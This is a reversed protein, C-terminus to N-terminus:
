FLFDIVVSFVNFHGGPVFKGDIQHDLSGPSGAGINTRDYQMKLAANKVFDWRIGFSVTKQEPAATLQKNLEKNAGAAAASAVGPDSSNSELRARAFSAYPTFKGFRYGSTVYWGSRKGYISHTDLVGYEGMVFWKGPDYNAGMTFISFEKDNPDYKDILATVQPALGPFFGALKRYNSFLEDYSNITGRTRLYSLHLTSHGYELTDTVTLGDEATVKGGVVEDEPLRASSRGYGFQVSNNVEGFRQRWNADVGDLRTLPILSYVEVPPRVWPSSYGVKRSDSLLFTPLVIRGARISFDPTFQYKLNLWEFEPRYSGDYRQESTIQVVASLDSNFRTDLQAGIRSDVEASWNANRGAGRKQLDHAIFDAQHESSHVLGATGYGRFSFISDEPENEPPTQSSTQAQVAASLFVAGIIACWRMRSMLSETLLSHRTKPM